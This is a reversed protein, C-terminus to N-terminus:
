LSKIISRFLQNLEKKFEGKVGFKKKFINVEYGGERVNEDTPLYIKTGALCGMCITPTNTADQAIEKYGVLVEASVGLLQLWNGLRIKKFVITEHSYDGIISDLLVERHNTTIDGKILGAEKEIFLDQMDNWLLDVWQRYAQVNPFRVHLPKYQFFYGLKDVWKTHTVATIDPKIDGAFGIFFLVPLSEDQYKERIKCRILGIYEASVKNETYGVPHCAFSWLVAITKNSGDVFRLLSITEDKLGNHDPYLLVKKRLRFGGEPRLLQKRRNVSVSTTTASSLVNVGVFEQEFCTSTLEMLKSVVFTYYVENFGGLEPKNKDLSPAFHTHSAGIWIHEKKLGYKSGFGKLIIEIFDTPVFLTDVSYLLIYSSGQQLISLNVELTDHVGESDTRREEFGCLPYPKDPTINISHSSIKISM